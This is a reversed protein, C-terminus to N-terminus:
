VRGPTRSSRLGTEPQPSRWRVNVTAGGGDGANNFFALRGAYRRLEWQLIGLSGTPDALAHAPMGPGDDRVQVEVWPLDGDAITALLVEVHQAGADFANTVLDAVVRRALQYDTGSLLLDASGDALRCRGRMGDPLVRVLANWLAAFPQPGGAGRGRLLELRAEEVVVLLDRVLARVEAPNSQPAEVTNAVVRVANKILSHLDQAASKRLADEADRVTETAAALIQEFSVWVLYLLLPSLGLAVRLVIPVAALAPTWPVAVIVLLLGAAGLPTLRRLAVLFPPPPGVSRDLGVIV